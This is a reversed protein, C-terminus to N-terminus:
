PPGGKTVRPSTAAISGRAADEALVAPSRGRDGRERLRAHGSGPSARIPDELASVVGARDRGDHDRRRLAATSQRSASCPELSVYLTAGRAREGAAELAM